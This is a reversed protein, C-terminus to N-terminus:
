GNYMEEKVLLKIKRMGLSYKSRVSSAQLGTIESLEEHDYGELLYLSIISRYNDPLEMLFHRLKGVHIGNAPLEEFAKRNGKQCRSILSRNIDIKKSM